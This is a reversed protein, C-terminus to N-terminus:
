ESKQLILLAKEEGCNKKGVTKKKKKKKEVNKKSSIYRICIYNKFTVFTKTIM